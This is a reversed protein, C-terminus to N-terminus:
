KKAKPKKAMGGYMYNSKTMGGAMMKKKAMGGAMMKKAAPKKKAAMGGAMMKTTPKKKMAMGGKNMKGIGDAAYAPVKKGDKMVMPMGGDKLNNPRTKPRLSKKVGPVRKDIPKNKEAKLEAAALKAMAKEIRAKLKEKETETRSKRLAAKMSAIDKKLDAITNAQAKENKSSGSIAAGVGLGGAVGAVGKINGVTKARRDKGTTVDKLIEQGKSRAKSTVTEGLSPRSRDATVMRKNSAGTFNDLDATITQARDIQGENPNDIVKANKFRDVTADAKSPTTKIVEPGVRIYVKGKEAKIAKATAKSINEALRKKAAAKIIKTGIGM